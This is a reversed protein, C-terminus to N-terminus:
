APARRTWSLHDLLTDVSVRSRANGGAYGAGAKAAHAACYPKGPADTPAGCFRYVGRKAPSNVPWRCERPKLEELTVRRADANAQALTKVGPHQKPAVKPHHRGNLGLPNKNKPDKRVAPATPARRPAAPTRRPGQQGSLGMRRAKGIVANRSMGCDLERAIERASYGDAWRQRLLGERAVTWRKVQTM